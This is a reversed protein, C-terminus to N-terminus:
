DDVYDGYSRYVKTAGQWWSAPLDCAGKCATKCADRNACPKTHPPLHEFTDSQSVKVMRLGAPGYRTGGAAAERLRERLDSIEAELASVRHSLDTSQEGSAM